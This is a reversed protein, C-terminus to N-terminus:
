LHTIEADFFRLRRKWLDGEQTSRVHSLAAHEVREETLRHRLHGLSRSPCAVDVNKLHDPLAPITVCYTTCEKKHLEMPRDLLLSSVTSHSPRPRRSFVTPFEHSPREAATSLLHQRHLVIHDSHIGRSDCRSLGGNPLLRVTISDDGGWGLPAQTDSSGAGRRGHVGRKSRTQKPNKNLECLDLVALSLVDTVEGVERTVAVGLHALVLLTRDLNTYWGDEVNHGGKGRLRRLICTSVRM